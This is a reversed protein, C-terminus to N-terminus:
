ASEELVRQFAELYSPDGGQKRRVWYEAGWFLYAGLDAGTARAAELSDNYVRIVDSPGCSAMSGRRPDPPVTIAEWPEAQGEALWIPRGSRAAWGLLDPLRRHRLPSRRADLYATLPGIAILAHRPYYDIGVVDALRQAVDLSDGQDRTRWWQFLRVAQSTPLFGNLLIPRAPDAARVAAVERRVFSEALRWSHENGLPDVAEHEVQWAVISPHDRYRHVLRGLVEEAAALLAPHSRESVLTGEPLPVPLRHPPVFFEPYGFNKVPGLGLVVQKGAGAVAELLRDLEDTELVGPRPEVRNWYAALRLLPFPYTLLRELTPLPELGLAEAQLPRFSIGLRTRGRPEVPVDRWGEGSARTPPSLRLE